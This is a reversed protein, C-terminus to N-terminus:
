RERGRAEAVLGPPTALDTAGPMLTGGVALAPTGQLGLAQVAPDDRDRRLRDRDSGLRGAAEGIVPEPTDERPSLLAGHLDAYRGQCQAALLARSAPASAPGPVPRVTLVLRADGNRPPPEAITPEVQRRCGCRAQSFEVVAVGRRPNGEAPVDADRLLADAHAALTERWAEPHDREAAACLAVVADRLITLDDRLARRPLDLAEERQRPSLPEGAAATQAGPAAPASAAPAFVALAADLAPARMLPRRRLREAAPM